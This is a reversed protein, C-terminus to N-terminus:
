GDFDQRLDAHRRVAQGGQGDVYECLDTADFSVDERLDAHSCARAWFVLDSRASSDTDAKFGFVAVSFPM